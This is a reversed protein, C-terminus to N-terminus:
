FWSCLACRFSLMLWNIFAISIMGIERYRNGLLFAKFFLYFCLVALLFFLYIYTYLPGGQTMSWFSSQFNLILCQVPSEERLVWTIRWPIQLRHFVSSLRLFLFIMFGVWNRLVNICVDISFNQCSFPMHMELYLM